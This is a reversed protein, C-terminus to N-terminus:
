NVNSECRKYYNQINEETFLKRGNRGPRKICEIRGDDSLWYLEWHTKLGLREVVEKTTFIKEM